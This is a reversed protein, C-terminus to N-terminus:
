KLIHICKPTFGLKRFFKQSRVNFSNVVCQVRDEINDRLWVSIYNHIISREDKAIDKEIWVWTIWDVPIDTYDKWKIVTMLTTLKKDKELYLVKATSLYNNAVFKFENIYREGLYEKWEKYFILKTEYYLKKLEDPSLLKPKITKPLVIIDKKLNEKNISYCIAVYYKSSISSLYLHENEIKEDFIFIMGKINNGPWSKYLNELFDNTIMSINDIKYVIKKDTKKITHMDSFM